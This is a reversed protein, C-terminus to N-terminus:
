AYVFVDFIKESGDRYYVKDNNIIIVSPNIKDFDIYESYKNLYLIDAYYNDSIYEGVSKSISVKPILITGMSSMKAQVAIIQDKFVITDLKLNGIIVNQDFYQVCDISESVFSYDFEKPLYVNDVDVEKCITLFNEMENLQFDYAFINKIKAIKLKKLQNALVNYKIDSGVLTIGDEDVYYCVNCDYASYFIMANNKYKKPISSVVFITITFALFIISITSKLWNRVMLFHVIISLVVIAFLAWYSISFVKYIGFPINSVYNAVVKILHLFANPLLLLVGLFRFILSIVVLSFLLVYTVSFIPLVFINAIIGLMSVKLFSNYCVPLIVFNTAISIAFASALVKPLKIKMLLKEITPALTIIAFICLFSLQFSITFLQLPSVLLIIIGAIGLSSLADYEIKFTDCFALLVAMISARCVSPTFSCLYSYFFLIIPLVILKLYKPKKIKKLVFYLASVLVGIHLGSVALIHSIGAYSFMSEINENLGQKDGFLIAYSIDANDENLNQDLIEKTENRISDKVSMKGSKIQMDDFEVFSQYAIKQYLKNAEGSNYISYKKLEGEFTVSDGLELPISKESYICVKFDTHYEIGDGEIVVNKILFRSSTDGSVVYDCVKGSVIVSDSFDPLKFINFMPFICVIIGILFAFLYFVSSLTLIKSMDKRYSSLLNKKHTLQAYVCIGACVFMTLIMLTIAIGFSIANLLYASCFIIGLLLGVFAVFMIRINIIRKRM